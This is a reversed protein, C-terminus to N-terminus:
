HIVARAISPQEYLSENQGYEGYSDSLFSCSVSTRFPKPSQDACLRAGCTSPARIWAQWVDAREPRVLAASLSGQFPVLIYFPLIHRFSYVKPLKHRKAASTEASLTRGPSSSCFSMVAPECHTIKAQVHVDAHVHADVFRFLVMGRHNRGPREGGFSRCYARAGM